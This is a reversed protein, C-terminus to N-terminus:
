LFFYVLREVPNGENSLLTNCFDILKSACDFQRQGTKKASALLTVLLEIDKGEDDSLGSLSVPFPHNLDTVVDTKSSYSEIFLQAALQIRANTSLKQDNEEKAENNQIKEDDM